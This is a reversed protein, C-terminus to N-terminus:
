KKDEKAQQEALKRQIKEVSKLIDAAREVDSHDLSGFGRNSPSKFQENVMRLHDTAWEQLVSLLSDGLREFAAGSAAIDEKHGLVNTKGQSLERLSYGIIWGDHRAEYAELKMLPLFDPDQALANAEQEAAWPSPEEDEHKPSTLDILRWPMYLFEVPLEPNRPRSRYFVYAELPLDVGYVATMVESTSKGQQYADKAWSSLRGPQARLSFPEEISSM